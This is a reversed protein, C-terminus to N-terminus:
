QPYLPCSAHLAFHGSKVWLPCSRKQFFKLDFMGDVVDTDSIYSASQLRWGTPKSSAAGRRLSQWWRRERWEPVM